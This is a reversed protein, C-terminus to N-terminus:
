LTASGGGGAKVTHIEDILGVIETVDALKLGVIAAITEPGHGKEHLDLIRRSKQDVTRRFERKGRRRRAARSV